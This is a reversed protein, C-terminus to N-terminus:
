LLPCRCAAPWPFARPWIPESCRHLPDAPRSAYSAGNVTGGANVAPRFVGPLAAQVRPDVAAELYLAITQAISVTRVQEAREGATVGAGAVVLPVALDDDYISGHESFTSYLKPKLILLIDGSRDSELGEIPERWSAAIPTTAGSGAYAAYHRDPGRVLIDSVGSVVEASTFLKDAVALVDEKYRPAERWVNSARNQLYVHAMGYNGAVSYLGALYGTAVIATNVAGALSLSASPDTHGHDSAIVFLTNDRWGSDQRQIADLLQGLQTDITNELYGAQSATGLHHSTADLGTFYVTLVDPLPASIATIAAGIMVADFDPFAATNNYYEALGFSLLQNFDPLVPTIRTDRAQSGRQWYQSFVVVSRKGAQAAVEYITPLQLSSNALGSECGANITYVCLSASSSTYEVAQGTLRDFWANGPIGHDKPYAGTFISAQGAFTVTPFIARANNFYAAATFPTGTGLSGDRELMRQFNKLRGARYSTDFVDRRLGDIDIIVVRRSAAAVAPVHWSGALLLCLLLNRM